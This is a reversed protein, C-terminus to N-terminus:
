NMTTGYKSYWITIDEQYDHVRVSFRHYSKAEKDGISWNVFPDIKTHIDFMSWFNSNEEWIRSKLNQNTYQYSLEHANSWADLLSPDPISVGPEEVKTEHYEIKYRYNSSGFAFLASKHNYRAFRSIKDNSLTAEFIDAGYQNPDDPLSIVATTFKVFPLIEQEMELETRNKYKVEWTIMEENLYGTKRHSSKFPEHTRKWENCEKSTNQQNIWQPNSYYYEVYTVTWDSKEDAQNDISPEDNTSCSCLIASIGIILFIYKM